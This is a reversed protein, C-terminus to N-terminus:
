QARVRTIVDQLDSGDQVFDAEARDLLAQGRAAIDARTLTSLLSQVHGADAAEVCWGLGDQAVKRGTETGALALSPCGAWSAEYIRNPLLWDSNAGRQWLDQAWVLDLDAYVRALDGPYAYEGHHHMNPHAALVADFDPLAHRHVIGHIHIEVADGMRGALDALLALSPACRITGVWGLRLPGKQPGASAEQSVPRVVPRVPLGGGALKTEWLAWPGSYGQVPGFYARVFGPSSVALMDVGRLLRREAARMARGPLGPGTLAGHIDLCEYVVAAQSGALRRAAIAIALMDLNRAVIVDAQRLRARHPLTRVVARAVAWARQGMAAHRVQGLSTDPWDPVFGTNMGSGTQPGAGTGAEAGTRRMTFSRVDHGLARLARIRRIQSAEAADFGFVEIRAPGNTTGVAEGAVDKM